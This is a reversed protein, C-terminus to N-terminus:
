NEEMSHEPNDTREDYKPFMPADYAYDPAAVMRQLEGKDLWNVSCKECTDIM